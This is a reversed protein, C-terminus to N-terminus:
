GRSSAVEVPVTNLIGERNEEDLSQRGRKWSSPEHQAELDELPGAMLGVEEMPITSGDAYQINPDRYHSTSAVHSKVDAISAPKSLQEIL